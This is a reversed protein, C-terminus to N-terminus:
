QNVAAAPKHILRTRFDPLLKGTDLRITLNEVQPTDPPLATLEHLGFDKPRTPDRVFDARQAVLQMVDHIVIIPHPDQLGAAFDAADIAFHGAEAASGLLLRRM